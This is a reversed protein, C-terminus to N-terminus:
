SVEVGSVRRGRSDTTLWYCLQQDPPHFQSARELAPDVCIIHADAKGNTLCPYGDFANCRICPSHPLAKGDHEDLLIGVPLHFPHHGEASSTTSSNSSARSM